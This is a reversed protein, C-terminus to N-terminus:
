GADRIIAAKIGVFLLLIYSTRLYDHCQQVLLSVALCALGIPQIKCSLNSTFYKELELTRSTTYKIWKCNAKNRNADM